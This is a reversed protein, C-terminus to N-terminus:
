IVMWDTHIIRIGQGIISVRNCCRRCLPYFLVSDTEPDALSEMVHRVEDMLRADMECEFVSKQTHLGKEKLFSFIKMRTKNDAIDYAVLVQM